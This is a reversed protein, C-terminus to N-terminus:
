RRIGGGSSVVALSPTSAANIVAGRVDTGIWPARRTQSVLGLLVDCVCDPSLLPMGNRWPWTMIYHYPQRRIDDQRSRSDGSPRVSWERAASRAQPRPLLM